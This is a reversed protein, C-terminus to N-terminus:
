APPGIHIFGSWYYPHSIPGPTNMIAKKANRLSTGIPQGSTMNAYFQQM